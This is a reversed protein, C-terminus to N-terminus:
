QPYKVKWIKGDIDKFQVIGFEYDYWIKNINRNLISGNGINLLLNNNSNIEIVKEFTHGNVNLQIKNSSNYEFLRVNFPTDIEDFFSSSSENWLPFDIANKFINQSKSFNYIIQNSNYIEGNEIIFLRITKNDYYYDLSSYSGVFGSGSYKSAKKLINSIVKFHLQEGFQNEYIIIQDNVYNYNIIFNFDNAVFKYYTKGDDSNEKTCSNIGFALFIFGSIIILKKM